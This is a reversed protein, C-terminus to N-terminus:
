STLPPTTSGAPLAPDNSFPPYSETLLGLYASARATYALGLVMTEHLGDQQKGTFVIVFWSVFAIVGSLLTMAYNIIYVPIALLNRFFAKLRSYHPPPPAVVLRIPYEPHEAGDFPPFVDTALNMFGNVRANFRLFSAVFEYLGAPYRATIVVVFWAAVIALLGGIAWFFAVIMWPIAVFYRFFTTLRSRERAYDAQYTVPYM